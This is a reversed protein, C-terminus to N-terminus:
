RAARPTSAASFSIAAWLPTWSSELHDIGTHADEALLSELELVLAARWFDQRVKPAAERHGEALRCWRNRQPM